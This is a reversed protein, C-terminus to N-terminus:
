EVSGCAARKDQARDRYFVYDPDEVFRQLGKGKLIVEMNSSFAFYNDETLPVARFMIIDSETM